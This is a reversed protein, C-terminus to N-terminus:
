AIQYTILKKQIRGKQRLVVMKGFLEIEATSGTPPCDGLNGESSLTVVTWLDARLEAVM